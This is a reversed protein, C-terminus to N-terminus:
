EFMVVGQVFPLDEVTEAALARTESNAPVNYRESDGEISVLVATSGDMKFRYEQDYQFERSYRRTRATLETPKNDHYQVEVGKSRPEKPM